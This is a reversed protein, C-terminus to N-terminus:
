HLKKRRRLQGIETINLSGAVEKVRHLRSVLSKATVGCLFILRQPLTVLIKCSRRLLFDWMLFQQYVSM